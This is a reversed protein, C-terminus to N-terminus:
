HGQRFNDSRRNDIYIRAKIPVATGGGRCSACVMRGSGRCTSCGQDGDSWRSCWCEVLGSGGCTECERRSEEEAPAQQEGMFVRLAMVGVLTWAAAPVLQLVLPTSAALASARVPGTCSRRRRPAAVLAAAHLSRQEQRAGSLSSAPSPLRAASLTSSAM